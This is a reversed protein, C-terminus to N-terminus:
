TQLNETTLEGFSAVDDDALSTSDVVGAFVDAHALIVGQESQTVTDDFELSGVFVSRVHRDNRGRLLLFYFIARCDCIDFFLTDKGRLVLWKLETPLAVCEYHTPRSNM